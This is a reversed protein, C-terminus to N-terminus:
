EQALDAAISERAFHALPQGRTVRDGVNVRVDALRQGSLESGIVAEQWAAINGNASLTDSWQGPSPKVATVTLIPKQEVPSDVSPEDAATTEAPAAGVTAVIIGVVGVVGITAVWGLKKSFKMAVVGNSASLM